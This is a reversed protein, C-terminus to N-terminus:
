CLVSVGYSLVKVHCLSLSRVRPFKLIGGQGLHLHIKSMKTGLIQFYFSVHFQADTFTSKPLGWSIGADLHGINLQFVLM